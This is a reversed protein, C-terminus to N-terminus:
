RMSDASRQTWYGESRNCYEQWGGPLDSAAQAVGLDGGLQDQAFRRDLGVHRVDEGLQIKAVAHLRYHQGVLQAHYLHPCGSPIQAGEVRLQRESCSATGAVVELGDTARRV